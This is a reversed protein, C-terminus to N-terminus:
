STRRRAVGILGLLGSGIMWVTAPEPVATVAMLAEVPVVGEVGLGSPSITPGAAFAGTAGNITFVATDDIGYLTGGSVASALFAGSPGVLSAVGTGTNVTYLAGTGRTLYLTSSNDSFSVFGGLGFGLNGIITAAGTSTNISFLNGTLDAGFLGGSTTSGLYFANSSNTGIVTLAGNTPDVSYITNGGSLTQGYLTGNAVSFGELLGFSTAGLHTTGLSTFVGTALDLTGFQGGSGAVYTTVAQAASGAFVAAAILLGRVIKM